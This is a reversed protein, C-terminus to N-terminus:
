IHLLRRLRHEDWGLVVQGDVFLIPTGNLQSPPVGAKKGLEALRRRAGPDEEVDLETYPIRNSKLFRRAQKCYGCGPSSFLLVQHGAPSAAAGAVPTDRTAVAFAFSERPEARTPLGRSLDAVMDWGAPPPANTDFVVVQGRAPGPIDALAAATAVQGTAPDLYRYVVGDRDGAIELPAPAAVAVPAVAEGAPGSESCASAGLAVMMGVLLGGFRKVDAETGSFRPRWRVSM